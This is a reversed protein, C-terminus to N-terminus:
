GVTWEMGPPEGDPHETSRQMSQLLDNWAGKQHGGEKGGMPCARRNGHNVVPFHNQKSKMQKELFM